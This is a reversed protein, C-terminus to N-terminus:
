KIMDRRLAERLARIREAVEPDPAASEYRVLAAGLDGRRELIAGLTREPLPASLPPLRTPGFRRLYGLNTELAFRLANGKPTGYELMPWFDRSVYLSRWRGLRGVIFDVARDYEEPALLLAGAYALLTGLPLEKRLDATEPRRDQALMEPVNIRLPEASAVVIGQHKAQFLACYPFVHRITHLILILDFTDMHHLQVWQQLIGGPELRRRCLEYFEQNYLNAAGALWVSSIEISILDYRRDHLLLYNRGDVVHVRVRPDGLINGNEARFHDSARLISPAIEAVDIERFPFRGITGATVGTGFGINLARDFKRLFLIPYVALGRQVGMETANNGQFKGNSWLTRVGDAETVTTIGGHVDEEYWVIPEHAHSHTFYVWRGGTLRQLDWGPLGLTLVAFLAALGAGWALKRRTAGPVTALVGLGCVMGAAGLVRFTGQSGLWSILGFGTVLSGVVSALTNVAYLVGVRRPTESLTGCGLEMSLPFVMGLITAPVLLLGVCVVFRTAEMVAFSPATLGVLAYLVDIRDYFPVTAALILPPLLLAAVLAKLGEGRHIWRATLRIGLALGVLFTFLMTGFAYVSSGILTAFVHSFLNEYAFSSAGSFAAVGVLASYSLGSPTTEGAPQVPVAEPAQRRLRLCRLFIAGNVAAALLLTGYIGTLPLLLFTSVLTGVAAGGLNAAYFAGIERAVARDERLGSRLVAPLTAGMLASPVIVVLSALIFRFMTLGAPGPAAARYFGVYAATILEHWLPTLACFIGIGLELVAYLLLPRRLRPAIRGVVFSGLALGVMFAALVTAIAYATTGFTIGFVKVFVTEYVVGTAGSAFFLRKLSRAFRAGPDPPPASM